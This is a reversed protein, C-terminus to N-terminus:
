RSAPVCLVEGVHPLKTTIPTPTIALSPSPSAGESFKELVNGLETRIYGPDEQQLKAIEEIKQKASEAIQKAKAMTDMGTADELTKSLTGIDAALEATLRKAKAAPNIIEIARERLAPVNRMAYYTGGGLVATLLVLKFLFRM